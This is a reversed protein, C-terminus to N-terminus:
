KNKKWPLNTFPLPLLGSFLAAIGGAYFVADYNQTMDFILGGALPGLFLAVGEFITILSMATPMLEIDVIDSQVSPTLSYPGITLGMLFGYVKASWANSTIWICCSLAGSFIHSWTYMEYTGIVQRDCLIGCCIKSVTNGIAVLSMAFLADSESLNVSKESVLRDFFYQFIIMYSFFGVTDCFFMMTYKKTSFLKKYLSMISPKDGITSQTAGRNRVVQSESYLIMSDAVSLHSASPQAAQSHIIKASRLSIQKSEALGPQLRLYSGSVSFSPIRASEAISFGSKVISPDDKSANANNEELELAASVLKQAEKSNLEVCPLAFIVVNFVIGAYILMAGNWTFDRVLFKLLIPLPFGAITNGGTIVAMAVNRYKDFYEGACLIHPLYSMGIGIGCIIGYTFYLTWVNTAFYSLASGIMMLTGGIMLTKRYGLKPVLRESIPAGIMMWNIIMISQIFNLQLDSCPEQGCLNSQRWSQLLIGCFIFAGGVSLFNILFCVVCILLSYKGDVAREM